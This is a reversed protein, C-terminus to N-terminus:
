CRTAWSSSGSTTTPAAAATRSRASCCGPDAFRHGLRQQLADTPTWPAATWSPRTLREAHRGEYKILLFVPGYIPIEKDYAFSIVVKDNKRPSELDKGSRDISYEIEKQRDFAARAEAV